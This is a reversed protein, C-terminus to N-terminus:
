VILRTVAKEVAKAEKRLRKITDKSPRADGSYTQSWEQDFLGLLYRCQFLDHNHAAQEHNRINERDRAAREVSRMPEDSMPSTPSTPAQTPGLAFSLAGVPGFVLLFILASKALTPM